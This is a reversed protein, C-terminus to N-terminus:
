RLSDGIELVPKLRILVPVLSQRRIDTIQHALVYDCLETWAEDIPPVPSRALDHYSRTGAWSAAFARSLSRSFSGARPSSDLHLLHKSGSMTDM